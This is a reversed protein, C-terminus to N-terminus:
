PLRGTFGGGCSEEDDMSLGETCCACFRIYVPSEIKKPPGRNLTGTLSLTFFSLNVSEVPAWSLMATFKGRSGRYLLSESEFWSGTNTGSSNAVIDVKISVKIGVDKGAYQPVGEMVKEQGKPYYIGTKEHPVWILTNNDNGEAYNKSKLTEDMELKKTERM